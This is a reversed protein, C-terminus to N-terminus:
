FHKDMNILQHDEIVRPITDHQNPAALAMRRTLDINNQLNLAHILQIAKQDEIFPLLSDPQVIAPQAQQM